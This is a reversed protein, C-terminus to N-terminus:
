PLCCGSLGPRGSGGGGSGSVAVMASGFGLDFQGLIEAGSLNLPLSSSRLGFLSCIHSSATLCYRILCSIFSSVGPMTSQDRVM